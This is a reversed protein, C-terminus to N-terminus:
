TNEIGGGSGPSGVARGNTIMLGNMIVTAGGSISFVRSQQNGSVTLQDAGPGVIALDDTVSLQGSSLAITGRVAPAFALVDAGHHDDADVVAQRLSGLGGDDLNTVTFVSPLTRDELALLGPVCRPAPPRRRGCLSARGHGKVSSLWGFLSFRSMSTGGV